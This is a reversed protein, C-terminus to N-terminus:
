SQASALPFPNTLGVRSFLQQERERMVAASAPEADDYGCLHLLGHVLYLALEDHPVAGLELATSQAMEASVVLEGALVPDAADSLPFSIVDTPWDHGLHLRNLTQITANDVLAISITARPRNELSLVSRVLHEIFSRDARLHSQTDSLEVAVGHDQDITV